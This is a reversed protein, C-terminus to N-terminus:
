SVIPNLLYALAIGVLFPMLIERLLIIAALLILAIAIWALSARPYTM